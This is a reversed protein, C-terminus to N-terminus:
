SPPTQSASPRLSPTTRTSRTTSRHVIHIPQECASLNNVHPYTLLRDAHAHIYTAELRQVSDRSDWRSLRQGSTFYRTLTRMPHNAGGGALRLQRSSMVLPVPSRSLVRGSRHAKLLTRSLTRGAQSCHGIQAHQARAPRTKKRKWVPCKPALLGGRHFGVKSVSTPQGARRFSGM